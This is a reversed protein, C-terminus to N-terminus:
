GVVRRITSMDAQGKIGTAMDYWVRGAHVRTVDVYFGSFPGDTIEAREGVRPRNADDIAAQIREAETPLSMVRCVDDASLAIPATGNSFVGTILKRDKMVDWQPQYRFEAYVIQSIMPVTYDYRKGRIHRVKDITPYKVDVGVRGLQDRTKAERQPATILAYWTPAIPQGTLGRVSKFPWPDGEKLDLTM